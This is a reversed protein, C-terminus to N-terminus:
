SEEAAITRTEAATAVSRRRAALWKRLLVPWLAACGPLILIHFLLSGGHAKEDVQRIGVTVFALAFVLGIAMYCWGALVLARAIDASM